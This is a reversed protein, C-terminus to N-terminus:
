AIKGMRTMKHMNLVVYISDTLEIGVKNFISKPPGMLFPIVYMTRGKMSGDFIETLKKYADKPLMWNNTPGVDEEKETCVFTLEETRAVDNHASRHLYCGPLKEQNLEILEGSKLAERILRKEEDDSGNLFEICNPKCMKAMETAWEIIFNNKPVTGKIEIGLESLTNSM